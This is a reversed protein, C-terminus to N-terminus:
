CLAMLASCHLKHRAFKTLLLDFFNTRTCYMHATARRNPRGCPIPEFGEIRRESLLFTKM